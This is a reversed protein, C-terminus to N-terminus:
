VISTFFYSIHLYEFERDIKLLYFINKEEVFNFLQKPVSM